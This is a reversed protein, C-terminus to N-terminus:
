HILNTGNNDPNFNRVPLQNQGPEIYIPTASDMEYESSMWTCKRCVFQYKHINNSSYWTQLDIINACEPCNTIYPPLLKIRRAPTMHKKATPVTPVNKKVIREKNIIFFKSVVVIFCLIIILEIFGINKKVGNM